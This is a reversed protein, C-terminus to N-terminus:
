LGAAPLGLAGPQQGQVRLIGRLLGGQLADGDPQLAAPDGVGGRRQLRPFWTILFLYIFSIM